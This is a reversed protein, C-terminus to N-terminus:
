VSASDFQALDEFSFNARNPEPSSFAALHSVSNQLREMSSNVKEVNKVSEKLGALSQESESISNVFVQFAKETDESSERTYGIIKEQLTLFQGVYREL